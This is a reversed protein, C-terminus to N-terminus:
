PTLKVSVSDATILKGTIHDRIPRDVYWFNYSKKRETVIVLNGKYYLHAYILESCPQIPEPKKMIGLLMFLSIFLLLTKM